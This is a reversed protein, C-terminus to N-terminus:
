ALVNDILEGSNVSTLVQDFVHSVEYIDSKRGPERWSSVVWDQSKFTYGLSVNYISPRPTVYAVLVDDGMLRSLSATQGENATNRLGGVLVVELGFLVPPLGGLRQALLVAEGNGNYMAQLITAITSDRKVVKAVTPSLAITNPDVGVKAAVNEGANDINKEITITGSSADWKVSPVNAPLGGTVLLKDLGQYEANLLLKEKLMLVADQELKIPEDALARSRDAIAHSLADEQCSFTGSGYAFDIEKSKAGIARGADTVIKRKEAADFIFYKDSEKTVQIVPLLKEIVYQNNATAVLFNSLAADIHIQSKTPM